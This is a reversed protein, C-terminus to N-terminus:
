GIKLLILSREGITMTGTIERARVDIAQSGNVTAIHQTHTPFSGDAVVAILGAGNIRVERTSHGVQSNNVFIAVEGEDDSDMESSSSFMVLYTGAAPTITMGTIVGWAATANYM